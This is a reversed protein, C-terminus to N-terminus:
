LLQFLPGVERVDYTVAQRNTTLVYDIVSSYCTSDTQSLKWNIIYTDSAKSSVAMEAKVIARKIQQYM